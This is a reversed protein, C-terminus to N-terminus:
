PGRSATYAVLDAMLEAAGGDSLGARTLQLWTGFDLALALVARAHQGAPRDAAGGAALAEALEAQRADLTQALLADLAPLGQRDRLVKATMAAQRRYSPYLAALVARLRRDPDGLALARGLEPPPHQAFFQQQCAAFLEGDSPFHKYVTLRSVGARRAIAAVTTAAPGREEHLAVTAEVIRQRTQAQRRAREKLAYPRKGTSM